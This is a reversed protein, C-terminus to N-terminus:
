IPEYFYPYKATPKHVSSWACYVNSTNTKSIFSATANGSQLDPILHVPHASAISHISKTRFFHTFIHMHSALGSLANGSHILVRKWAGQLCRLFGFWGSVSWGGRRQGLSLSHCFLQSKEQSPNGCISSTGPNLVRLCRRIELLAGLKWPSAYIGKSLLGRGGEVCVSAKFTMRIAYGPNCEKHEKRSVKLRIM